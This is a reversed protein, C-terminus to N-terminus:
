NTELFRNQRRDPTVEVIVGETKTTKKQETEGDGLFFQRNRPACTVYVNFMPLM